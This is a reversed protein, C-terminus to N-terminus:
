KHVAGKKCPNIQAATSRQLNCDDTRGTSATRTVSPRGRPGNSHLAKGPLPHLGRVLDWDSPRAKLGQCWRPIDQNRDREIMM